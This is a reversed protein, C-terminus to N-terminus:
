KLMELLQKFENKCAEGLAIQEEENSNVKYPYLLFSAIAKGVVTYIGMVLCYIPLSIYGLVFINLLGSLVPAWMYISWFLGIMAIMSKLKESEDM